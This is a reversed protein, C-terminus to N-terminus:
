GERAVKRVDARLCRDEREFEWPRWEASKERKRFLPRVENRDEAVGRLWFRVGGPDAGHVDQVLVDSLSILIPNEKPVEIQQSGTSESEQDHLRSRRIDGRRGCGDEVRCFARQGMGTDVKDVKPVELRELLIVAGEHDPFGLRMEPAAPEIKFVIGRYACGRGLFGIARMWACQLPFLPDVRGYRFAFGSHTPISFASISSVITRKCWSPRDVAEM